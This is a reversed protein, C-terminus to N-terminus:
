TRRGMLAAAILVAIPRRRFPLSRMPPEEQSDQARLLGAWPPPNCDPPTAFGNCRRNGEIGVGHEEVFAALQDELCLTQAAKM